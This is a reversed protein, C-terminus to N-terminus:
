LDPFITPPCPSKLESSSDKKLKKWHIPSFSPQLLFNCAAVTYSMKYKNSWHLKQIVFFDHFISFGQEQCGQKIIRYESWVPTWELLRDVIWLMFYSLSNTRKGKQSTGQTGGLIPTGQHEDISRCLFPWQWETCSARVYTLAMEKLIVKLLTSKYKNTQGLLIKKHELCSMSSPNFFFQSSSWWWYWPSETTVSVAGFFARLSRMSASIFCNSLSM